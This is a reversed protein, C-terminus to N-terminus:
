TWKRKTKSDSAQPRDGGASRKNLDLKHLETILTPTPKLDALLPASPPSHAQIEDAGAQLQAASLALWDPPTMALDSAFKIPRSWARQRALYESHQPFLPLLSGMRASVVPRLRSGRPPVTIRRRARQQQELPLQPAATGAADEAAVARGGAVAAAASRSGAGSAVIQLLLFSSILISVTQVIGPQM